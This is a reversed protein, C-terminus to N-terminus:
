HAEVHGLRHCLPRTLNLREHRRTAQVPCHAREVQQCCGTVPLTVVPRWGGGETSLRARVGRPGAEGDLEVQVEQVGQVQSAL